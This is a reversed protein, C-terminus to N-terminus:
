KPVEGKLVSNFFLPFLPLRMLRLTSQRFFSTKKTNVYKSPHVYMKRRSPFSLFAIFAVEPSTSVIRHRTKRRVENKRDFTTGPVWFGM